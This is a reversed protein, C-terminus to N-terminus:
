RSPNGHSGEGMGAFALSVPRWIVGDEEGAPVHGKRCEHGLHQSPARRDEVAPLRDFHRAPDEEAGDEGDTRRETPTQHKAIQCVEVEADGEDLHELHTPPPKTSTATALQGLIVPSSM